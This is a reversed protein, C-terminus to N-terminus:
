GLDHLFWKMWSMEKCTQKKKKNKKIAIFKAETTSFAVCKQLKLQWFVTGRLFTILSGYSSKRSDINSVLDADIYGILEHKRSGFRLSM